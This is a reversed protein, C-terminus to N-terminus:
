PKVIEGMVYIHNMRFQRVAISISPARLYKGYLRTLVTELQAATKGAAKVEKVLPLAIMGDPRIAATTTLDPQGFVTVEIQDGAGLVYNDPAVAPAAAPGTSPAALAGTTMNLVLLVTSLTTIISRM